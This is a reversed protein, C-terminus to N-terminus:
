FQSVGRFYLTEETPLPLKSVDLGALQMTYHQNVGSMMGDLVWLEWWTRRLCEELMTNVGGHSTAYITENMKLDRALKIAHFVAQTSEEEKDAMHLGIGYLILTQVFYHDKAGGYTALLHRLNAECVDTNAGVVYFAGIYQLALHLHNLPLKRLLEMMQTAPLVFPHGPFFFQYFASFLGQTSADAPLQPPPPPAIM